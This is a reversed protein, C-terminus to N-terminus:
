RFRLPIRHTTRGVRVTLKGQKANGARPLTVNTTWTAGGSKRWKHAKGGTILRPRRHAKTVVLRYSGGRKVEFRGAAYTRHKLFIGLIRYSGY